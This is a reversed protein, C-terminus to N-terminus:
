RIEIKSIFDFAAGQSTYGSKNVTGADAALKYYSATGPLSSNAASTIPSGTFQGSVCYTATEDYAEPLNVWDSIYTLTVGDGTIDGGGFLMHAPTNLFDYSDGAGQKAMYFACTAFSALASFMVTLRVQTGTAPGMLSDGIAAVSTFGGWNADSNPLSDQFVIQAVAGAVIRPGNPGPLVLAVM